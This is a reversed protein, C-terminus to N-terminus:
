KASFQKDGNQILYWWYITHVVVTVTFGIVGSWIIDNM